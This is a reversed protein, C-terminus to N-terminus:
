NNDGDTTIKWDWCCFIMWVYVCDIFYSTMKNLKEADVYSVIVDKNFYVEVYNTVLLEDFIDMM